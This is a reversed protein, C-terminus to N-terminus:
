SIQQKLKIQKNYNNEVKNNNNKFQNTTRRREPNKNKM